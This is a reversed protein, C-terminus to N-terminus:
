ATLRAGPGTPLPLMPPPSSSGVPSPPSPGPWELESVESGKVTLDVLPGEQDHSVGTGRLRLQYAGAELSGFVGAYVVTRRLDRRRVATHTGDWPGGARRIEIEAGSLSNPTYVIVAGRTGGIDLVVTAVGSPGLEPEM